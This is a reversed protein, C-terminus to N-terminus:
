LTETGYWGCLLIADRTDVGAPSSRKAVSTEARAAIDRSRDSWASKARRLTKATSTPLKPLRSRLVREYLIHRDQVGDYDHLCSACHDDKIAQLVKTNSWYLEDAPKELLSGLLPSQVACY